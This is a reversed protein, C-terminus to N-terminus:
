APRLDKGGEFVERFHRLGDNLEGLESEIREAAAKAGPQHPDFRVTQHLAIVESKLHNACIHLKEILALLEEHHNEVSM